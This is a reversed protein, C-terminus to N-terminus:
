LSDSGVFCVTFDVIEDNGCELIYDFANRKILSTSIFSFTPIYAQIFVGKRKLFDLRYITRCIHVFAYIPSLVGVSYRVFYSAWKTQIFFSGYWAGLGLLIVFFFVYWLVGKRFSTDM